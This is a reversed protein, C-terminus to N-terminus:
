GAAVAEREQTREGRWAERMGALLGLTQGFSSLDLWAVLDLGAAVLLGLAAWALLRPRSALVRM